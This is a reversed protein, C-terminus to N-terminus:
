CASGMEDAVTNSLLNYAKTFGEEFNTSGDPIINKIFDIINKVNDATSRILSSKYSYASSNFLVIGVWDLNTLTNVVSIAAEKMVDIRTKLGYYSEM